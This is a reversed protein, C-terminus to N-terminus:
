AASRRVMRGPRAPTRRGDELVIDGGVIVHRIGDAPTTPEEFTARDLVTAADFM